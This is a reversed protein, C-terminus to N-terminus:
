EISEKKKKRQELVDNQVLWNRWMEPLFGLVVVDALMLWSNAAWWKSILDANLFNWNKAMWYTMWGWIAWTAIWLIADSSLDKFWDSFTEYWKSDILNSSITWMLGMSWWLIM